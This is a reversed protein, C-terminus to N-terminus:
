ERSIAWSGDRLWREGSTEDWRFLRLCHAPEDGDGFSRGASTVLVPGDLRSRSSSLPSCSHSTCSTPGFIFVDIRTSPSQDVLADKFRGATTGEIGEGSEALVDILRGAVPTQAFPIPGFKYRRSIQKGHLSDVAEPSVGVVPRALNLTQRFRDVVLREREARESDTLDSSAIFDHLSETTYRQFPQAPREVFSRARALVESPKVHITYAGRGALIPKGTDPDTPLQAPRWM